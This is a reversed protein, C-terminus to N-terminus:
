KGGFMEDPTMYFKETLDFMDIYPIRIEGSDKQQEEQNEAAACDALIAM